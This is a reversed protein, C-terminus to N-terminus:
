FTLAPMYVNIKKASCVNLTKNVKRIGDTQM